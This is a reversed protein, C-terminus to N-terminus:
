VYRRKGHWCGKRNNHNWWHAVVYASFRRHGNIRDTIYVDWPHLEVRLCPAPVPHRPPYSNDGVAYDAEATGNPVHNGRFLVGRKSVYEIFFSM